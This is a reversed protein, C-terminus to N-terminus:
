REQQDHPKGQDKRISDEGEQRSDSQIFTSGFPSFIVLHVSSFSFITNNFQNRFYLFLFFRLLHILLLLFFVNYYIVVINEMDFGEQRSFSRAKCGQGKCDQESKEEEYSENALRQIHVPGFYQACEEDLQLSAPFWCPFCQM